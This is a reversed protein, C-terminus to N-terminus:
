PRTELLDVFTALVIGGINGAREKGCAGKGCSKLRLQAIKKTHNPTPGLVLLNVRNSRRRM